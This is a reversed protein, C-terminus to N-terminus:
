LLQGPGPRWRRVVTGDSYLATMAGTVSGPVPLVVYTTATAESEISARAEPTLVASGDTVPRPERDNQDGTTPV